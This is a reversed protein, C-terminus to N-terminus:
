NISKSIDEYGGFVLLLAILVIMILLRIIDPDLISEKERNRFRLILKLILGAVLSLFSAQMMITFGPYHQFMFLIGMAGVSLSLYIIKNVFTMLGNDSADAAFALIFYLLSLISMSIIIFVYGIGTSKLLLGLVVLSICFIETKVQYPRLKIAIKQILENGM